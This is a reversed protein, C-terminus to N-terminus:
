KEIRGLDGMNPEDHAGGKGLQVVMGTVGSIAVIDVGPLKEACIEQIRKVEAPTLSHSFGIIVSDGPRVILGRGIAVALQPASSM